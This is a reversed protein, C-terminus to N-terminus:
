FLEDIENILHTVTDENVNVKNVENPKHLEASPQYKEQIRINYAKGSKSKWVALEYEIGEIKIFGKYNPKNDGEQKYSNKFLIGQKEKLDIKM